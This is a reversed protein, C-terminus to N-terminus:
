RETQELHDMLWHINGNLQTAQHELLDLHDTPDNSCEEIMFADNTPGSMIDTYDDLNTELSYSYEYPTTKFRGMKAIPNEAAPTM